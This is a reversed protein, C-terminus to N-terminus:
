FYGMLDPFEFFEDIWVLVLIALFGVAEYVLIGHPSKRSGMTNRRGYGSSIILRFRDLGNHSVKGAILYCDRATAADLELPVPGTGAVRGREDEKVISDPAGRCPAVKGRRKGAFRSAAREDVAAESVAAGIGDGNRPREGVHVVLPKGGQGLDEIRGADAPCKEDPV